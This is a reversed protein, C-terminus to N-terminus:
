FEGVGNAAKDIFSKKEVGNQYKYKIILIGTENWVYFLGHLKGNKYNAVKKNSGNKYFIRLKGHLLGNKFNCICVTDKRSNIYYWVGSEKGKLYNGSIIVKEEKGMYDSALGFDGTFDRLYCVGEVKGSFPITDGKISVFGYSYYLDSPLIQSYAYSSILFFTLLLSLSRTKM